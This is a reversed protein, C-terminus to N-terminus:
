FNNIFSNGVTNIRMEPYLDNVIKLKCRTRKVRGNNLQLSDIYVYLESTLNVFTVSWRILVRTDNQYDKSHKKRKKSTYKLM